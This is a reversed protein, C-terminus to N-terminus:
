KNSFSGFVVSNFKPLEVKKMYYEEGISSVTWSGNTQTLTVGASNFYNTSPGTPGIAGTPGTPGVVPITIWKAASNNITLVQGSTAQNIPMYHGTAGWYVNNSKIGNARDILQGRSNVVLIDKAM